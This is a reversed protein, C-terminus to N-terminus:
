EGIAPTQPLLNQPAGDPRQACARGAISRAAFQGAFTSSQITGFLTARTQEYRSHSRNQKNGITTISYYFLQQHFVFIKSQTQDATTTANSHKNTPNFRVHKQLVAPSYEFIYYFYMEFIITMLIICACCPQGFATTLVLAFSLSLVYLLYNKNM